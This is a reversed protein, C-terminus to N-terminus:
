CIRRRKEMLQLIAPNLLAPCFNIIEPLLQFLLIPKSQRAIGGFTQLGGCHTDVSVGPRLCIYTCVDISLHCVRLTYNAIGGPLKLGNHLLPPKDFRAEV